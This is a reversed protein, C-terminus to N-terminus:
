SSVQLQFNSSSIQAGGNGAVQKGLKGLEGGCPGMEMQLLEGM